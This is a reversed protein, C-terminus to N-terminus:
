SDSLTMLLTVMRYFAYSNRNAKLLFQAKQRTGNELYISNNTLLRRNYSMWGANSAGTPTSQPRIERLDKADSFSVGLAIKQCQKHSGVDLQKLPVGVQSLCLCLCDCFFLCVSV